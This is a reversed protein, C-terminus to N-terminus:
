NLFLLIRDKYYIYVVVSINWFVLSASSAIAAGEMGYDPILAYNGFLNLIVTLILINQLVNQKGTMNMYVTACGCLANVVNGILLLLLAKRGDKYEDGFIALLDSPFFVFILILPLSVIFIIRSNKKILVYLEKRNNTFYLSAVETSIASQLTTQIVTILAMLKIPQSYIAITENSYYKKLFLLDISLLLFFGLGSIAMPFSTKLIKFHSLSCNTSTTKFLFWLHITSIIFLILFSYLFFYVLLQTRNLFLLTLVVALILAYKIIGRYLESLINRDFVRFFETNLLTVAYFFVIGIMHSFENLCNEGDMFITLWSAPLFIYIIVLLTSVSLIITVMRLYLNKLEALKDVSKLFGTFQLISKDM